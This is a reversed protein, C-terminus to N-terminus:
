ESESDASDPDVDQESEDDARNRTDEPDRSMGSERTFSMVKSCPPSRSRISRQPVSTTSDTRAQSASPCISPTPAVVTIECAAPRRSRTRGRDSAAAAASLMGM